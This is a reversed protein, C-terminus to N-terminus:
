IAAFTNVFGLQIASSIMWKQKDYQLIGKMFSNRGTKWQLSSTLNHTLQYNLSFIFGSTIITKRNKILSFT